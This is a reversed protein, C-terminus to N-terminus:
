RATQAGGNALRFTAVVQTLRAAQESLSAAAATSQEVLAANQQTMQDLQSVSGNIQGIQESQEVSSATIKGIIGSVRQVSSLIDKMTSGADGVLKSGSAVKDVSTEILKKIQKAAEASNHALGRVEGAVVAFGRGQEGARAAEVAANLALINTQFAISDIVATIEAIKRSSLSIDEMNQVVQQVVSGGRQAAEFASSVLQNAQAAAEASQKVKATLEEMSSATEQINAAARETRQSLDANGSAVEASAVQVSEASARVQGVVTSLSAQMHDLSRLMDTTEDAGDAQVRNALNSSAIADALSRAQALPQCISRSNLLTSPMVVAISLLVAVAFLAQIRRTEEAREKQALGADAALQVLMRDIEDEAEQVVTKARALMKDAVTASDYGGAHVNKLISPTREAYTALSEEVKRAGAARPGAPDAALDKALRRANDLAQNWRPLLSGVVDPKEYAIIMDKEFRRVDNIAMRLSTLSVTSRYTDTVFRNDLASLRSLGWLGAGGLAAMLAAVIIVAGYMRMRISFRRMFNMCTM